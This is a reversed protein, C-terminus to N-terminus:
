TEEKDHDTPESDFRVGGITSSRAPGPRALRCAVIGPRRDIARFDLAQGAAKLQVSAGSLRAGDGLVEAWRRAAAEPREVAVELGVLGRDPAPRAPAGARWAPGGWEWSSPPDAWDLSVIAGPVDRPDLHTASIHDLDVQWAIRVGLRALRRRLEQRGAVQFIAMYGGEGHRAVFRAGATGGTLPALVELFCDGFSLVRNELGFVGVGPDTWGPELGLEDRLAVAVDEIRPTILAVQRLRVALTM